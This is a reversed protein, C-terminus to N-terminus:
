LEVKTLHTTSNGQQNKDAFHKGGSPGARNMSGRINQQLGHHM